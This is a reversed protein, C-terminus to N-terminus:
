WARPRTPRTCRRPPPAGALRDAPSPSRTESTSLASMLGPRVPSICAFTSRSSDASCGPRSGIRRHAGVTRSVPATPIAVPATSRVATGWSAHPARRSGRATSAHPRRGGPSGPTGRRWRRRRCPPSTPARWRGHHRRARPRGRLPPPRGRRPLDRARRRRRGERARAGARDVQQRGVVAGPQAAARRPRPRRPPRRGRPPWPCGWPSTGEVGAVPETGVAASLISAVKSSM